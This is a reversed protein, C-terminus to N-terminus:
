TVPNLLCGTQPIQYSRTAKIYELLFNEESFIIDTLFFTKSRKKTKLASYFYPLRCVPCSSTTNFRHLYSFNDKARFRFGV